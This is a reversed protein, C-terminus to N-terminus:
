LNNEEAIYVSTIKEYEELIGNSIMSDTIIGDVEHWSSYTHLGQEKFKSSDCLVYSLDSQEIMFQKTGIEQYSHSTPGNSQYIGSTGLLCVDVHITKLFQETWNGIVAENKERKRGPLLFVNHSKGDLLTAAELSNTFIDMSPLHNILPVCSLCTTGSDLLLSHSEKILNVAYSAVDQKRDGYSTRMDLQLEMGLRALSAGGYEKKAIGRQELIMLDKRITEMSVHFTEALENAQVFGEEQLRNAIIQLRKSLSYKM